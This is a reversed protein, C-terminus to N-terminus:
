FWASVLEDAFASFVRDHAELDFPETAVTRGKGLRGPLVRDRTAV